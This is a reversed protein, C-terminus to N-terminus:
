CPKAARRARRPARTPADGRQPQHSANHEVRYGRGALANHGARGVVGRTHNGRPVGPPATAQPSPAPRVWRPPAGACGQERRPARVGDPTAGRPQGPPQGLRKHRHAEQGAPAPPRARQRGCAESGGRPSCGLVDGQPAACGPCPGWLGAANLRAGGARPARGGRGRAEVEPPAATAPRPATHAGARVGPPSLM